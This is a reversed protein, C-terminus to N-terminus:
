SGVGVGVELRVDKVVDGTESDRGPLEWRDLVIAAANERGLVFRVDNEGFRPPSPETLGVESAELM